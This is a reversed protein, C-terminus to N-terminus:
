KSPGFKLYLIEELAKLAKDAKEGGVNTVAVIALDHKPQLLIHALNMENSGGHFIFPEISWKVNMQGWGLGYKGKSPTGPKAGKKIPLAIVPTQLKKLTAPRALNPGRKGEGANWGAWAAFDLVSMHVTGAPGIILPNDGNPGALMPILMGERIQHGLPADIKGLTAQPGFGASRLELPVFIRETVLEEWSKGGIRELIAGVMTYGMNSYAFVKGPENALPEKIWQSVLWYRLDDLNGDQLFSELLLEGFRKNDSPMGSTHSLLQELTMGRMKPNMKDKLEPFLNGVTSEWSLKGEELFIAALLATMAKTDSGLHFRDNLTVPIKDGAKRTGVAGAAVIVGNKVVAAGLAPLDYRELYPELIADLTEQVRRDISSNVQSAALGTMMFFVLCTAEIFLLWNRPYIRDNM